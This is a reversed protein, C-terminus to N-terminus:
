TGQEKTHTKIQSALPQPEKSWKISIEVETDMLEHFNKELHKLTYKSLTNSLTPKCNLKM